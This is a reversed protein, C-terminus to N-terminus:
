LTNAICHSALPRIINIIPGVPVAHTYQFVELNNALTINFKTLGSLIPRGQEHRKVFYSVLAVELLFGILLVVIVTLIEIM